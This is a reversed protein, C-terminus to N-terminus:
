YLYRAWLSTCKRFDHFDFKEKCNETIKNINVIVDSVNRGHSLDNAGTILLVIKPKLSIVDFNFRKIADESLEGSIGRNKIPTIGFFPCTRWLEIQSDGFFVITYDRYLKNHELTKEWLPNSILHHLRRRYKFMKYTLFFFLSLLVIIIFIISFIHLNM